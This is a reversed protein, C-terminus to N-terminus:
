KLVSKAFSQDSSIVAFLASEFGLEKLIDIGTSLTDMNTTSPNNKLRELAMEIESHKKPDGHKLIKMATDFLGNYKM